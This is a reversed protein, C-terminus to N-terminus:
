WNPEQRRRGFLAHGIMAAGAAILLVPWTAALTWGGVHEIVMVLYAAVAFRLLARALSEIGPRALLRVVGSLAILLPAILWLEDTSILGQGRLLYGVGLLVLLGGTVARRAARHGRLTLIHVSPHPRQYDFM